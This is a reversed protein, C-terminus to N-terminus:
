RGLAIRYADLHGLASREWTFRAARSLGRQRRDDVHTGGAILEGIAGVLGSLDDPEVLLAADGAFEAMVSRATTVLPAGCALAELAPLGFGEEISPYAVVSAGRLLPAVLDDNVYGLLLIRSRHQSNALAREIEEAGWALQGALVLHLDPNTEAIQGFAAILNPINKRPEITGVHLLYPARVGVGRRLEEDTAIDGHPHFREHDVGHMVVRVEGRPTYHAAFRSATHESVCIVVDARIAAHRMARQFVMVKSREHWEPHDVFTLDHITVVSPRNVYRPVQYHPGHFVGLEPRARRLDRALGFESYILRLPRSRPALACVSLNGASAEALAVWRAGDARRAFLTTQVDDRQGLARVLEITYRGAGVPESPIATVDLGLAVTIDSV